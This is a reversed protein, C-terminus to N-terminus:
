WPSNGGCRFSVLGRACDNLNRYGGTVRKRTPDGISRSCIDYARDWENHCDPDNQPSSPPPGIDRDDFSTERCIEPAKDPPSLLADGIDWLLLATTGVALGVGAVDAPGPAPSDVLATGGSILYRKGSRIFAAKFKTSSFLGEPDLANLPDQGVYGYLSQGAALGLPDAELYRGLSADYTRHWNQYLGSGTEEWQGLFRADPATGFSSTVLEGFPSLEGQWTVAGAGNMAILPQGLPGTQIFTLTGAADASAVLRDGMWIYERVVAGTAGDYEGLLRGDPLFVFHRVGEGLPINRWVRRGFADYDLEVANAAAPIIEGLRGAENYTFDTSTSPGTAESINGDLTHTFTRLTVSADSVTKLIRNSSVPYVYAASSVVAGGSYQEELVRNGVGDYTWEVDGWVGVARKLRGDLHYTYTASSAPTVADAIATVRSNDDYTYTKGLIVSSPGTLEIGTLRYSTDLGLAASVGNGFVYGILPGYPAHGADSVVDSFAGSGTARTTIDEIRGGADYSFDVQRGSPYTIRSLDGALDYGYGIVYSQADLQWTEGTVSGFLDYTYSRDSVGGSLSTLRGKGANGGTEDDYGYALGLAPENPYTQATLRGAVDYAYNTDRGAATLVRTVRGAADYWYDTIGRDPSDERIVDGFGNRVYSTVLSRGDTFSNLGGQPSWAMEVNDSQPDTVSLVRDLPDFATLWERGLGDKEATLRNARDYELALNDGAGGLLTRLRGLEDYGYVFQAQIVGGSTRFDTQTINGLLDYAYTIKGGGSSRAESLWGSADYDFENWRSGPADIRTINGAADYTFATVRENTGPNITITELWGRPTYGLVTQRGSPETIRTPRGMDDTENVVTVHGLEDTVSALNGNADYAFSTTDGTGALPGDITELLGGALWTYSWTRTQGNTPYPVTHSTTDTLTLGTVNWGSDYTWSADLGPREVLLPKRLADDWTVNTTEQVSSGAGENIVSPLGTAVSVTSTTTQGEEAITSNLHGSGTYGLTMNSAPCSPSSVGDVSVLKRSKGDSPGFLGFTYNTEKGLANTVKFLTRDTIMEFTTLERGLPGVSSVARWGRLGYEYAWTNVRIEREDTKGTLLRFNDPHEYHYRTAPNDGPDSPTDDPFTVQSLVSWDRWTAGLAAASPITCNNTPCFEYDYLYETGDPATVKTLAGKDSYDFLIVYGDTDEASELHGDTDYALAIEYGDPYRIDTMRVLRSGVSPFSFDRQVGDPTKLTLRTTSVETILYGPLDRRGSATSGSAVWGGTSSAVGALKWVVPSVTSVRRFRLLQGDELRFVFYGYYSEFGAQVFPHFNSAWGRGLATADTVDSSYTRAFKLRGRGVSFDIEHQKKTGSQIDIPNGACPGEVFSPFGCYNDDGTRVMGSPCELGATGTTGWYGPGGRNWKCTVHHAVGANSYTVEYENPLIGANVSFSQHSAFCASSPDAYMGGDHVAKWFAGQPWAQGAWLLVSLVVLLTRM